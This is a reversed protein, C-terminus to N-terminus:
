RAALRARWRAVQEAVRAPATGGTHARAAVSGEATLVDFVDEEIAPGLRRLEALPLAAIECGREAAM